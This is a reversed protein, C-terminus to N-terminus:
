LESACFTYPGWKLDGAKPAKMAFLKRLLNEVVHPDGVM